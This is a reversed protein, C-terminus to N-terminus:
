LTKKGCIQVSLRQNDYGKMDFDALEEQKKFKNVLNPNAIFYRGFSVAAAEGAEVVQSAEDESYSDNVILPGSFHDKALQLNDVPGKPMRIVHLYALKLPAIADLLARFTEEPNDDQLDNFPNGPCIRMGVRGAGNVAVMAELTEVVFRLRNELSGGYQDSRKNTGTSLFQAPLYGSTAHLEVGAFGAAFANATAEAYEEVISVIENTALERPVDFEIMGKADTYMKGAAQIASPAVTETDDPKNYQSAVRGCHMLQLVMSGGQASVSDTISKWAAIQQDSYIGPTRCYGKGDASPHTGETIILGASARQTYYERMSDTPMDGREKARSRTMPAMVIRNNLEISGLKTPSFLIDNM